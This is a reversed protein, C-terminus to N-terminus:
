LTQSAARELSPVTIGITGAAMASHCGTGPLTEAVRTYVVVLTVLGLGAGFAFPVLFDFRVLCGSALPGLATEVVETIDVGGAISLPLVVALSPGAVADATRALALILM